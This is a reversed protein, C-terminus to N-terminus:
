PTATAHPDQLLLRHGDPDELLVGAAGAVGTAAGAGALRSQWPRLDPVAFVLRDAVVDDVAAPPQLRRGRPVHYGLLEVHPPGAPQAQLAVVDVQADALGDLRSQAPGQNHSRGAVHWGLQQYFAVSTAVEAVAIASHDIGLFLGSAQQWCPAGVGAPFQILELPHGEPDRFKFASVGGTNAPLTQPGGQSIPVVGHAGVRAYAAQIDSVVIALHQFCLDAANAQAPYPRGPPEFAVLEIAQAGLQLRAVQARAGPLGLRAGWGPGTPRAPETVRFDLADRYFAVMRALDVVNRSIRQLRVASM